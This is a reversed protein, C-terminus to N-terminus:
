GRVNLVIEFLIQPKWLPSQSSHRRRPHPATYIRHFSSVNRPFTDGGDEPYSMYPMHFVVSDSICRGLSLSNQSSSARSPLFWILKYIYIYISTLIQLLKFNDCLDTSDLWVATIGTRDRTLEHPITQVPDIQSLISVLPPEQSCPLSGEPEMFHQSTWLYSCLQRSRFFPEAGRTLSLRWLHPKENIIGTKITVHLGTALYCRYLCAVTCCGNSPFLETSVYNGRYRLSV